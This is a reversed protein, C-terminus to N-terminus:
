MNSASARSFAQVAVGFGIGAAILGRAVDTVETAFQASTVDRWVGDVRRRLAVHNPRTAASDFVFDATNSETLEAVTSDVHLERM